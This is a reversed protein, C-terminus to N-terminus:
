NSKPNKRGERLNGEWFEAIIKEKSTLVQSKNFLLLTEAEVNKYTHFSNINPIINKYM